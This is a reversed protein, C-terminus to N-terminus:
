TMLERHWKALELNIVMCVIKPLAWLSVDQTILKCSLRPWLGYSIIIDEFFFEFEGIISETSFERISDGVSNELRYRWNYTTDGQQFFGVVARRGVSEFDHQLHECLSPRKNDISIFHAINVATQFDCVLSRAETPTSAGRPACTSEWYGM